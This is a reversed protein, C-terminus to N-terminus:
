DAQWPRNDTRERWLNVCKQRVRSRRVSM